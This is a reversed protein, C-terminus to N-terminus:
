RVVLHAVIAAHSALYAEAEEAVNWGNKADEEAMGVMKPSTMKVEELHYGGNGIFTVLKKCTERHVM